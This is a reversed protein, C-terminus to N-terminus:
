EESIAKLENYWEKTQEPTKANIFIKKNDTEIYIYPASDKRIFLLSSGYEKVKFKGKAMTSLGFGNQRVTVKPMEELLEVRKVEEYSWVNGYVGTIEFFDQRTVLQYDQYGIYMIIGTFGMIVIFLTTSLIYSRKRKKLIEYKSLYIYGTLLFVIMFGFQVELTYKFPTFILPLLIFMGVATTILLKGSRQPYGNEILQLQEEKPRNAFGSLLWYDKKKLIAWGIILFLLILGLQVILLLVM